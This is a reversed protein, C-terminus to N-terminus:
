EEKKGANAGAVVETIEQTIQNQRTKNYTIRLKKVIKDASDTASEMANRRSALESIESELLRSYLLADLYHPFLQKILEETSGDKEVPSYPNYKNQDRTIADFNFPLIREITPIFTLSNKYKTYLLYVGEYQNKQYINLIFHRLNKAKSFRFDKDMSSVFMDYTVNPRVRYRFYGKQGIFLIEDDKNLQPEFTKYLNYNYAGCLGLTSTVLIFLRKNSNYKKICLNNQLSEFPVGITAKVLTEYMGDRFPLNEFYYHRYRQFKVSAVLKMAKTIKKTSEITNIRRKTNILSEAM